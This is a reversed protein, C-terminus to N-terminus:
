SLEKLAKELQATSNEEGDDLFLYNIGSKWDPELQFHRCLLNKAGVEIFKVEGFRNLITDISRCWQVPHSSLQALYQRIQSEAPNEVYLGTMNPLYPASTRNIPVKELYKEFKLSSDSLFRSHIPVDVKLKRIRTQPSFLSIDDVCADIADPKGVLMSATPSMQGGIEVERDKICDELFSLSIPYVAVRKWGTEMNEYSRGRYVLFRLMDAFDIAGIHFLHNCEGLSFGLSYKTRINNDHLIKEYLANVLFVAVQLNDNRDFWSERENTFEKLLDKNLVDAAHAILDACPPHFDILKQWMGAYCSLQSPFMFVTQM